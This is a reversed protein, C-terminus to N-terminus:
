SNSKGLLNSPFYDYLFLPFSNLVAVKCEATKVYKILQSDFIRKQKIESKKQPYAQTESCLFNAKVVNMEILHSWNQKKQEKKESGENRNNPLLLHDLSNYFSFEAALTKFGHCEERTVEYNLYDKDPLEKTYRISEVMPYNIYLKGNATEEKFYELMESIHLNNEELTLGSEQFDYDFFLYIESIDTDSIEALTDDGKRRLIENLITVTNGSSTVNVFTDYEKLKSYLCYINSNYTCVFVETEKPFFLEKLSEFFRSDCKGEFIFLIM